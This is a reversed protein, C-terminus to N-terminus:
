FLKNIIDDNTDNNNYLHYKFTKRNLERIDKVSYFNLAYSIFSQLETDDKNYYFPVIPIGNDIQYGFSYAANDVIVIDRLDRNAFIRLDKIFVGENTAICNDRFLRHHIYQNHPDLYDLM